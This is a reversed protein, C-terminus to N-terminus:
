HIHDIGDSPIGKAPVRRHNNMTIKFITKDTARRFYSLMTMKWLEVLDVGSEIGSFYYVGCILVM